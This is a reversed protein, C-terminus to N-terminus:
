RHPAERGSSTDHFGTISSLSDAQAKGRRASNTAEPSFNDGM